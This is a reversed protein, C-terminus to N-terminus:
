GGQAEERNRRLADEALGFLPQLTQEYPVYLPHMPSGDANKRLCQVDVDLRSLMRRVEYIRDRKANRGWGGVVLSASRALRTITSDNLPGVPDAVKWLGKPDTSRLAYLNAVDFGDFGWRRTFEQCKRLTPDLENEDATSPNLMLWLVRRGHGWARHLSYRYIRADDFEAGSAVYEVKM